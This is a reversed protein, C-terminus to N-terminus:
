DHTTIRKYHLLHKRKLASAPLAMSCHSFYAFIVHYLGFSFNVSVSVWNNRIIFAQPGWPILPIIMTGSDELTRSLNVRDLDMKDYMQMLLVGVMIIVVSAVGAALVMM